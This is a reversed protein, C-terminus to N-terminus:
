PSIRPKKGRMFRWGTWIWALGILVLLGFAAIIAFPRLPSPADFHGDGLLQDAQKMLALQLTPDNDTGGANLRFGNTQGPANMGSKVTLTVDIGLRKAISLLPESFAGYPFALIHNPKGLKQELVDNAKSLDDTVRREYEQETEQRQKDKLYMRRAIMSKLGGTESTTPVYHHSDFTHSHFDIGNNNMEKVQEWTVRPFADKPDGVKNVILFAAAPAQYKRLLPYAHAYLSEYGDDFTLLVANDPVPTSRLIFDRYQDMTIWHFNNDRMLELQKDFNAVSLSKGDGNDPGVDHYMLVLVQNSYYTGNPEQPGPKLGHYPSAPKKLWQFHSPYWQIALLSVTIMGVILLLSLSIFKTKTSM